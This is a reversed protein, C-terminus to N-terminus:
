YDQHQWTRCNFKFRHYLLFAPGLEPLCKVWMLSVIEMSVCVTQKPLLTTIPALAFLLLGQSGEGKGKIKHNCDAGLDYLSLLHELSWSDWTFYQHMFHRTILALNKSIRVWVLAESTQFSIIKNGFLLWIHHWCNTELPCETSIRSNQRYSLKSLRIQLMQGSM